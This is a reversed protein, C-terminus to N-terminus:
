VCVIFYFYDHKIVSRIIGVAMLASSTIKKLIGFLPIDQSYMNCVCM